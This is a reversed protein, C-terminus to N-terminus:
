VSLLDYALVSVYFSFIVIWAEFLAQSLHGATRFSLSRMDIFFSSLSLSTM